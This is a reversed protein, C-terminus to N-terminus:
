AAVGKQRKHCALYLHQLARNAATRDAHGADGAIAQLRQVADRIVRDRALAALDDPSPKLILAEAGTRLYCLAADLSIEIERQFAAHDGLSLMGDVTLDLLVSSLDQYKERL